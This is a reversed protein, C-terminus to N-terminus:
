RLPVGAGPHHRTRRARHTTRAPLQHHQLPLHRRQFTLAHGVLVGIHDRQALEHTVKDARHLWAVRGGSACPLSEWSGAGNVADCLASALVDRTTQTDANEM